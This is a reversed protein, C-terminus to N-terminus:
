PVLHPWTRQEAFATAESLELFARLMTERKTTSFHLGWGLVIYALRPNLDCRARCQECVDDIAESLPQGHGIEMQAIGARIAEISELKSLRLEDVIIYRRM